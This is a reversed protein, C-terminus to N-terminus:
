YTELKINFCFDSEARLMIEAVVGDITKDGCIMTQKTSNGRLTEIIKPIREIDKRSFKVGAIDYFLRFNERLFYPFDISTINYIIKGTNYDYDTNRSLKTSYSAM